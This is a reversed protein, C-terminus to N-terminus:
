RRRKMIFPIHVQDEKYDLCLAYMIVNVGFRVAMERQTEGGPSVEFEFRGFDDRAWAGSHDNPSLLVALRDELAIGEMQARRVVRGGRGTVLYFTKWLVHADPVLALKDTPLIRLMEARVSQEFLDDVCDIFLMGGARVFRRLAAVEQESLAPMSGEGTWFLFPMTELRPDAAPLMLIDRETAISTRKEVESLLRRVATPRPNYSGGHKLQAFQLTSGPSPTLQIALSWFAVWVPLIM